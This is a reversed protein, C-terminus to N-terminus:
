PYIGSKDGKEISIGPIISFLRDNAAVRVRVEEISLAEWGPNSQNRQAVREMAVDVDTGIYWSADLLANAERWADVLPTGDAEAYRDPPLRGLLLYNGEM